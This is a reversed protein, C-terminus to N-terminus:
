YDNPNIPSGLRNLVEKNGMIRDVLHHRDWAAVVELDKCEEYECPIIEGKYYISGIKTIADGSTGGTKKAGGHKTILM